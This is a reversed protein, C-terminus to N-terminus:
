SGTWGGLSRRRGAGADRRGRAVAEVGFATAMKGYEDLTDRNTTHNSDANRQLYTNYAGGVAANLVGLGRVAAGQVVGRRRQLRRERGAQMGQNYTWTVDGSNKCTSLNVGDNVLNSSNLM